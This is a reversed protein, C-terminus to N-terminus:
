FGVPVKCFSLNNIRALVGEGRGELCFASFIADNRLKQTYSYSLELFEPFRGVRYHEPDARASM